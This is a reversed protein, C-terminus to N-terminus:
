PWARAALWRGAAACALRCGLVLVEPSSDEDFRHSRGGLSRVFLMASPLVGAVMAADHLAGSRMRRCEPVGIDGAAQALIRILDPAMPVPALAVTRRAIIGCPGEGAQRAALAVAEEAMAELRELAGARIQLTARVRGPVISVANPLIEVRGFTWVATDSGPGFATDIAAAYRVFARVADRRRAMPTTGAHNQDGIFELEIHTMGVIATVIAVSEGADDLVPGQEIHPEIFASFRRVPVPSASRLEPVSRIADELRRGEADIAGAVSALDAAGTWCRSGLLPQFCGEEDSFAVASVGGIGAEMAARAIELGCVVGFAGDLWGGEPQTDSHSGILMGPAEGPAIGFLNGVPDWAVDLGADAMRGALFRRAEIDAPRLAQRVM